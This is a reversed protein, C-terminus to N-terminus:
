KSKCLSLRQASGLRDLCSRRGFIVNNRDTKVYTRCPNITFPYEKKNPINSSISQRPTEAQPTSGLRNLRVIRTEVKLFTPKNTKSLIQRPDAGSGADLVAGSHRGKIRAMTAASTITDPRRRPLLRPHLRSVSKSVSVKHFM